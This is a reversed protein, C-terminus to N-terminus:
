NECRMEKKILDINVIKGIRDSGLRTRLMIDLNTLSKDEKDAIIVRDFATNLYYKLSSYDTYDRLFIYFLFGRRDEKERFKIDVRVNDMESDYKSMKDLENKIELFVKNRNYKQRETVM